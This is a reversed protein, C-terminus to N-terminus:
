QRQGRQQWLRGEDRRAATEAAAGAALRRSPGKKRRVGLARVQGAWAAIASPTGGVCVVCVVVVVVVVVVVPGMEMEM